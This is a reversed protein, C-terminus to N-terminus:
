YLLNIMRLAETGVTPGVTSLRLPPKPNRFSRYWLLSLSIILVKPSFIISLSPSSPLHLILRSCAPHKLGQHWSFSFSLVRVQKGAAGPHGPGSLSLSLPYHPSHPTLPFGEGVAGTRKQSLPGQQQVADERRWWLMMYWVGTSKRMGCWGAMNAPVLDLHLCSM